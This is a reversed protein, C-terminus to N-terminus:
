TVLFPKTALWVCNTHALIIAEVRMLVLPMGRGPKRQPVVDKKGTYAYGPQAQM